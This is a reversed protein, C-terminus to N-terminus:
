KSLDDYLSNLEQTRFYTMRIKCDLEMSYQSSGGSYAESWVKVYQDRYLLWRMQSKVVANVLKFRNTKQLKNVIKNYITQLQKNSKKYSSLLGEETERQTTANTCLTDVSHQGFVHTGLTMFVIM